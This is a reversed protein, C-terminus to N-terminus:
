IVIAVCMFDRCFFFYYTIVTSEVAIKMKKSKQTSINKLDELLDEKTETLEEASSLSVPTQQFIM